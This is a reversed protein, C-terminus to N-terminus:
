MVITLYDLYLDKVVILFSWKDQISFHEKAVIPYDLLILIQSAVRITHVQLDVRDLLLSYKLYLAPSVQKDLRDLLALM